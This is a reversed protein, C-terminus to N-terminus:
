VSKLKEVAALAILAKLIKLINQSIQDLLFKHTNISVRIYIKGESKLTPEKIISINSM